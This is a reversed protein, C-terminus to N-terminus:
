LQAGRESVDSLVAAADSAAAPAAADGVVANLVPRDCEVIFPGCKACSNTGGAVARPWGWSAAAACTCTDAVIVAACGVCSGCYWFCPCCSAAADLPRSTSAHSMFTTVDTLIMTACEKGPAPTAGNFTGPFAWPQRVKCSSGCTSMTKTFLTSMSGFFPWPKTNPLCCCSDRKYLSSPLVVCMCSRVRGERRGCAGARRGAAVVSHESWKKVEARVTFTSSYTLASFRPVMGRLPASGYDRLPCDCPSSILM